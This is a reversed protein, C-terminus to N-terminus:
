SSALLPKPPPVDVPLFSSMLKFNPCLGPYIPPCPPAVPPNEAAPFASATLVPFISPTGLRRDGLLSFSARHRWKPCSSAICFFAIDKGSEM